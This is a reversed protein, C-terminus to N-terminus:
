LCWVFHQGGETLLAMYMKADPKVTSMARRASPVGVDRKADIFMERRVYPFIERRVSPFM